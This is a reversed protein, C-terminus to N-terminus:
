LWSPGNQICRADLDVALARHDSVPLRLSVVGTVADRGIGYGLVHDFQVTPHAVPYTHLRALRCWGSVSASLPGPINLDGLLLRPVPLDAVWGVITRLQRVNWGPMFSLHTTVVTVPGYPTDAVAALAARPEDPVPTPLRRGAVLLPLGFPAAPFRCVRVGRLPFRSVLAIGYQGQELPEGDLVPRWRVPAGRVAAPRPGPAAGPRPGRAAGPRAGPVGTLTPVFQVHKAELAEAVVAPQDVGGSRDLHRDVEQIGLIDADIARAAACLAAEGPSGDRLSQGHLLNFTAIRLRPV